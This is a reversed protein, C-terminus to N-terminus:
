SVGDKTGVEKCLVPQKYSCFWAMEKQVSYLLICTLLGFPINDM